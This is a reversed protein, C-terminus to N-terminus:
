LVNELEKHKHLIHILGEKGNWHILNKYARFAGYIISISSSPYHWFFCSIYFIFFGFASLSGICIHSLTMNLFNAPNNLKMRKVQLYIDWLTVSSQSMITDIYYILHYQSYFQCPSTNMFPRLSLWTKPKFGTKFNIRIRIASKYPKIETLFVARLRMVCFCQEINM